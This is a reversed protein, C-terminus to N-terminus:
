LAETLNDAALWYRGSDKCAAVWDSYCVSTLSDHWAKHASATVSEASLPLTSSLHQTNM